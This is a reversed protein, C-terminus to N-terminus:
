LFYNQFYKPKQDVITVSTLNSCNSFAWYGISRVSEPITVNTLNYCNSFASSKINTIGNEIHISYIALNYESWPGSGEDDMEGTGSLTLVGDILSWTINDSYTGSQPGLTYVGDNCTVEAVRVPVNDSGIEVETWQSITGSFFISTLNNCGYFAYYDISTVSAPITVSTLSSCCEFVYSDISTVGAPITVDTLSSCFGFAGSYIDNVSASITVSTLSICNFFADYGISTVGNEIQVSIIYPLFDNWPTAEGDWSMEGTGSITLTGNVLTWTVNDGCTGSQPGLVYVGDSCIIEALRLSVNGYEIEIEDWQAMSGSYSVSTLNNCESFAEFGIRTVSAPITINTLNSCRYFANDGISTIGDMINVSTINRWDSYWPATNSWYDDMQCQGRIELVGNELTWSLVSNQAEEQDAYLHDLELAYEASAPVFCLAALLLVLLSGLTLKKM